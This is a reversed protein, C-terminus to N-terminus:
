ALDHPVFRARVLEQLYEVELPQSRIIDTATVIGVLEDNKLVPLKSAEHKSMLKSATEVSAGQDVTVVPASMIEEAHMQRPDRGKKVVARLIDGKTIIGVVSEGNKVVISGIDSELMKMAADYATSSASVCVVGSSMIDVVRLVGEPM